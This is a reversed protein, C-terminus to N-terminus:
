EGALQRLAQAQRHAASIFLLSLIAFVSGFFFPKARGGSSAFFEGLVSSFTRSFRSLSNVGFFGNAFLSTATIKADVFRDFALPM